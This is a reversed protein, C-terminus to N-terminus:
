QKEELDLAVFRYGLERMREVISERMQIARDYDSESVCIRATKQHSYVTANEIGLAALAQEARIVMEAESLPNEPQSQM